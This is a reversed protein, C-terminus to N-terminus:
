SDAGAEKVTRRDKFMVRWKRRAASELREAFLTIVLAAFLVCLCRGAWGGVIDVRQCLVIVTMHFLYLGYSHRGFFSFVVNDVLVIRRRSMVLIIIAFVVAYLFQPKLYLVANHGRLLGHWLMLAVALAGFAVTWNMEVRRKLIHFLVVGLCITPFSAVFWFASFFGSAVDRDVMRPLLHVYAFETVFHCGLVVAVCTVFARPLDRVWLWILPTIVFLVALVGLYWEVALISNAYHPILGHAFFVHFLVNWGSM